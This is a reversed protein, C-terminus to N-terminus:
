RQLGTRLAPDDLSSLISRRHLEAAQREHAATTSDGRADASRALAEHVDMLVRRKGIKGAADLAEQFADEAQELDGLLLFAEGRWRQAQAQMEQMEDAIARALLDDAYRLAVAPEGRRIYLETLGEFARLGHAIQNDELAVSLAMELEAQVDLDGQRMRDIAHNAQVRPLWHSWERRLMREVGAAHYVEAQEPLDLEQYLQGLSDVAMCFFRTIKLKEALARGRHLLEFGRGYDGRAAVALGLGVLNCMTHWELHAAATLSLSQEFYSEANAYDGTGITGLSAWGLMQLNESEYSIDSNARALDLSERFQMLARDPEGSLLLAEGLGHPAQIGVIDRQDLARCIDVAEQHYARAHVIDGEDWHVTGLHYLANAALAQNGTARAYDLVESLYSIAQEHRESRRFSLGLDIVVNHESEVDGLAQATKRAAMLDAIAGDFEGMLNRARGRCALVRALFAEDFHGDVQAAADILRDFLRTADLFRSRKACYYNLRELVANLRQSDGHEAAYIWATRLNDFDLDLTHLSGDDFGNDLPWRALEDLFYASHRQRTAGAEGMRELQGAAYQRLFEHIEYRGDEGRWLLSKQLLAMLVRLGEGTVAEAAARTFGGRFVSLRAFANQEAGSLKGWASEVVARISRHREPLDRLDAALFDLNVEIEHAIEVPTLMEVWAAALILALPMGDVLRVLRTIAALTAEDVELDARAGRAHHLFLRVGENDLADDDDPLQLGGVRYLTEDQINLRERSTIMLDVQVTHQLIDAILPAGDLLTDFNDLVLLMQRPRLYALLQEATPACDDIHLNLAVALAPAIEEASVLGALSVFYAGDDYQRQMKRALELALRTKGIGGPGVLTILRRDPERLLACLEALESERGIFPTTPLPLAPAVIPAAEMTVAMGGNGIVGYERARAIAQTRNKAGLKSYIQTNYWKVTGLTLVLARAIEENSSGDAILRLIEQERETLSDIPRM